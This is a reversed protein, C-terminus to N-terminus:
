GDIPVCNPVLKGKKNKMGYQVFGKACPKKLNHQECPMYWVKGEYEHEHYSECGIDKAAAIALEKQLLRLDTM